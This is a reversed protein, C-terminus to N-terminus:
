LILPSIFTQLYLQMNNFCLNIFSSFHYWTRWSCPSKTSITKLDLSWYIPLTSNVILQDAPPYPGVLPWSLLFFIGERPSCWAVIICLCLCVFLHMNFDDGKWTLGAQLIYFASSVGIPSWCEPVKLPDSRVGNNVYFSLSSWHTEPNEGFDCLWVTVLEM